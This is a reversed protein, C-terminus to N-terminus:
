KLKALLRLLEASEDPSLPALTAQTIAEAPALTAAALSSGAETLSVLLMRADTPDPETRTLGRATLRDIVGKITARDMATLRGLLSQACRGATALRNLAAFQTPTLGAPMHASFLALHRQQVQRLVFGVNEELVYRAPAPPAAIAM